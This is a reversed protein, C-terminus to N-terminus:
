SMPEAKAAAELQQLVAPRGAYRAKANRLAADRKAAEGLVAYARVLRVWGEPDDPAAKLRNALGEVMGRIASLQGESFAPTPAPGPQAEEIAQALAARRPDEAPLEVMLARWEAIGAPDGAEVRARALYFRAALAKPDRAAAQQFASKAEPTLAGGAENVLAQGLTEWLDAREPALRVARRLARVAEAPNQAANEALALLRFGEPDTPRESTRLKVVAALEPADLRAPDAALWAKMRTSFPQDGLGPSALALYLGLALVPAISVVILVLRRSSADASWAVATEAAALLRRAAEAHASAREVEGILGREALEDLEALQRRYLGPTPDQAEGQRAAVAAWSLILGAAAASLVGAAVWFAIM